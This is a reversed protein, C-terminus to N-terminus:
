MTLINIYTQRSRASVLHILFFFFSEYAPCAVSRTRLCRRARFPSFFSRLARKMKQKKFYNSCKCFEQKVTQFLPSQHCLPSRQESTAGHCCAPPARRVFAVSLEDNLLIDSEGSTVGVASGTVQGPFRLLFAKKYYDIGALAGYNLVRCSRTQPTASTLPWLHSSVWFLSGM